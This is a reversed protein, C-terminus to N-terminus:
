GQELYRMVTVVVILFAIALFVMVVSHNFAATNLTQLADYFAKNLTNIWLNIASIAVVLAVIVIATMWNARRRDSKLWFTNALRFTSATITNM